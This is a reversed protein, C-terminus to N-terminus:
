IYPVQTMNGHPLHDWIPLENLQKCAMTMRHFSNSHILSLAYDRANVGRVLMFIEACDLKHQTIPNMDM